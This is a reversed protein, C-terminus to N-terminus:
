GGLRGQGQGCHPLDNVSLEANFLCTFICLPSFGNSHGWHWLRNERFSWIFDWMTVCRLRNFYFVKIITLKRVFLDPCVTYVWILSSCDSWPRWQKGNRRCRKSVNSQIQPLLIVHLFGNHTFFLILTRLTLSAKWPFLMHFWTVCDWYTFISGLNESVCMKAFLTSGSCDLWPRCQKNYHRWRKSANSQIQPLPITYNQLKEDIICVTWHYLSRYFDM